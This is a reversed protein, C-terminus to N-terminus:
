AENWCSDLQTWLAADENPMGSGLIRSLLIALGKFVAESSGVAGHAATSVLVAQPQRELVGLIASEYETPLGWRVDDLRGALSERFKADSTRV